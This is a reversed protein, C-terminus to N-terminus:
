PIKELYKILEETERLNFAHTTQTLTFAHTIVTIKRDPELYLHEIDEKIFGASVNRSWGHKIKLARSNRLMRLMKTTENKWEYKTM